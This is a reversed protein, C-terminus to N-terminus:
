KEIYPVTTWIGDEGLGKLLKACDDDNVGDPSRFEQAVVSGRVEMACKFQKGLLQFVIVVETALRIIIIVVVVAVVVVAMWEGPQLRRNLMCQYTNNLSQSTRLGCDMNICEQVIENM